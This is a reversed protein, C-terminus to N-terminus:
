APSSSKKKKSCFVAYSSTRHSSNLRTSKRDLGPDSTWQSAPAFHPAPDVDKNPEPKWFRYGAVGAVALAAIWGLKSTREWRPFLKKTPIPEYTHLGALPERKEEPPDDM